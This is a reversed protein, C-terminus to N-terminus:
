TLAISGNLNFRSVCLPDSPDASATVIGETVNWRGTGGLFDIRYGFPMGDLSSKLAASAVAPVAWVVTSTVSPSFDVLSGTLGCGVVTSAGATTIDLTVVGFVPGGPQVDLVSCVATLEQAHYTPGTVEITGQIDCTGTPQAGAPSAIMLAALVGVALALGRARNRQPGMM